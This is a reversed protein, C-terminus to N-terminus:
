VFGFTQLFTPVLYQKMLYFLKKLDHEGVHQSGPQQHGAHEACNVTEAFFMPILCCESCVMSEFTFNTQMKSDAFSSGFVLFVLRM